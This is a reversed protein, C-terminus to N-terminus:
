EEAFGYRKHIREIFVAYVFCMLVFLILLGQATYWYHFPFGIFRFDTLISQNHLLYTKMIGPSDDSGAIAAKTAKSLQSSEISVLSMPLLDIMLKEFGSNKLELAQVALAVATDRGTNDTPNKLSDLFTAKTEPTLLQATTCTLAERLPTVHDVTASKKLAVNKGLVSLVVRAFQKKAAPTASSGDAIGPWVEEFIHYNAEPTPKNLIVLAFQFGFVAIAWIIVLSSILKMNAMAHGPAPRFFNVEDTTHQSM